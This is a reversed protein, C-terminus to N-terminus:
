NLNVGPFWQYIIAKIFNNGQFKSDPFWVAFLM